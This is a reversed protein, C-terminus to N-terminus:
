SKLNDFISKWARILFFCVGGEEEKGRKVVWKKLYLNHFMQLCKNTSKRLIMLLKQLRRKDVEAFYESFVIAEKKLQEQSLSPADIEKLWTKFKDNAWNAM